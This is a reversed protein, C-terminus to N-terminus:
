LVLLRLLEHVVVIYDELDNHHTLCTGHTAVTSTPLLEISNLYM